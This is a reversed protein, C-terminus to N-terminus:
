WLNKQLQTPPLSDITMHIPSSNDFMILKLLHAQKESPLIRIKFYVSCLYTYSLIFHLSINDQFHCYLFIPTNLMMHIFLHCHHFYAFVSHCQLLLAHNLLCPSHTHPLMFHFYSLQSIVYQLPVYYYKTWGLLFSLGKMDNVIQMVSWMNQLIHFWSILNSLTQARLTQM